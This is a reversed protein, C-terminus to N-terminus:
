TYNELIALFVVESKHVHEFMYLSKYMNLMYLYKIFMDCVHVIKLNYMNLCTCILFQVHKIYMNFM